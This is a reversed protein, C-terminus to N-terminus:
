LTFVGGQACGIVKRIGGMVEAMTKGKNVYFVYEYVDLMDLPDEVEPNEESPKSVHVALKTYRQRVAMKLRANESEVDNSHHGTDTRRWGSSHNVPPAHRYGLQVTASKSSKWGDFVLFSKKKIHKQITRKISILGRPKKSPAVTKHPLLAFALKKMGNEHTHVTKGHGCSVALWLWRADRRKDVSAPKKMVGAPKKQVGAPKKQVGRPEEDAGSPKKRLGSSKKKSWITRCPLRKAVRERRAKKSQSSSRFRSAGTHIGKHVGIATEDFVVTINPGGIVMSDDKLLSQKLYAQYRYRWDRLTHDDDLGYGDKMEKEILSWRENIRLLIILHIVAPWLAPTVGELPGYGSITEQLHDNKHGGSKCEWKCHPQPKDDRCRIKLTPVGNCQGCKKPVKVMGFHNALLVGRLTISEKLVAPTKIPLKLANSVFSTTSTFWDETIAKQYSLVDMAAPPASGLCGRRDARQGPM